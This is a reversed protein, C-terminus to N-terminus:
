REKEEQRRREEEIEKHSLNSYQINRSGSPGCAADAMQGNM